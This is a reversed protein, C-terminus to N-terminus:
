SIMVGTIRFIEARFRSVLAACDAESACFEKSVDAQRTPCFAAHLPRCGNANTTITCPVYEAFGPYSRADRIKEGITIQWLVLRKDAMGAVISKATVRIVQKSARRFVIRLIGSHLKSEPM